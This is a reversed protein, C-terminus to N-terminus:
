GNDQNSEEHKIVKNDYADKLTELQARFNHNGRLYEALLGKLHYDWLMTFAQKM